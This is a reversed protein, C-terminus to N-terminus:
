GTVSKRIQRGQDKFYTQNGLRDAVRIVSRPNDAKCSPSPQYRQSCGPRRYLWIRLVSGSLNM